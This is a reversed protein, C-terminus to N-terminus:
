GSTKLKNNKDEAELNFNPLKMMPWGLRHGLNWARENGAAAMAQMAARKAEAMGPSNSWM